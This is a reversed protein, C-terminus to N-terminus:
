TEHILYREGGRRSSAFAGDPHHRPGITSYIQPPTVSDRIKTISDGAAVVGCDFNVHDFTAHSHGNM